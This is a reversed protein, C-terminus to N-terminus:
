SAGAQWEEEVCELPECGEDYYERMTERCEQYLYALADRWEGEKVIRELEAIWTEFTVTKNTM